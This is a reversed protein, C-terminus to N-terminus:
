PARRLAKIKEAKKEKKEYVFHEDVSVQVGYKLLIYQRKFHRAQM